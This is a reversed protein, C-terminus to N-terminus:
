VADAFEAEWRKFVLYGVAAVIVASVASMAFVGPDPARGGALARRFGDVIGAAPNAALYLARWREPVATLPYAVPSALMWLQLLPPLAYRFDRYYVTLAGLGLAVGSVLIAMLAWLPVVFIFTWSLRIGLLPSMAVLLGLGVAFDFCSSVIAGLVPAERAFYVKKVLAGDRWLALSGFAVSAQLFMWPVLASLSAAPYSARGEAFGVIRGFALTFIALFALPQLVAWAIGLAAQKYKLRVDREAFAWIVERFNWVNRLDQLLTLRRGGEVVLEVKRPPAEVDHIADAGAGFRCFSSDVAPHDM